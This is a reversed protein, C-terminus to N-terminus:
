PPGLLDELAEWDAIGCGNTRTFTANVTEGRIDGTVIAKQPGGYVETCVRDKAPGKILLSKTPETLAVRCAERAASTTGLWGTGTPADGSCTLAAENGSTRGAIVVHLQASPANNLQPATSGCAAAVAALGILAIRFM